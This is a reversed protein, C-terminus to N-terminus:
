SLADPEGVAVERTGDNTGACRWDRWENHCILRRSSM